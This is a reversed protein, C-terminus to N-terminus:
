LEISIITENLGLRNSEYILFSYHDEKKNILIGNVRFCLASEDFKLKSHIKKHLQKSMAFISKLKHYNWHHFACGKLEPHRVLVDRNLNKYTSTKKWPRNKDWELQKEKYGLRHYKERHRLRDTELGEPTSRIKSEILASDKKTCAKCKNLHGDGMRSHKYYDSLPKLEGCKFCIKSKEM